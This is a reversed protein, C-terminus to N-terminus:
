AALTFRGPMLGGGLDVLEEFFTMPIKMAVKRAAVNGVSTDIPSGALVAISKQRFVHRTCRPCEAARVCVSSTSGAAWTTSWSTSKPLIPTWDTLLIRQCGNSRV